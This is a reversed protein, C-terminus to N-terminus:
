INQAVTGEDPIEEPKLKRKPWPIIALVVALALCFWILQGSMYKVSLQMSNSFVTMVNDSKAALSHLFEMQYHQLGSGFLAAGVSPAIIVRTIMVILIWSPFLRMPLRQMGYAILCGSFMVVAANRVITLMRMDEYRTMPQAQNYTFWMIWAYILLSTVAIWRYHVGKKRLVLCTIGGIFYGPICWNGLMNNTYTDMDLGIGALVSTLTSSSSLVMSVVM